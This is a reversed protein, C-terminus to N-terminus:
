AVMRSATTSRNWGYGARVIDEPEGSEAIDANLVRNRAARVYEERYGLREAIEASTFGDERMRIATLLKADEHRTTVSPM